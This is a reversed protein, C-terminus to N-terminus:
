RSKSKEKVKKDKNKDSIWNSLGLMAKSENDLKNLFQRTIGGVSKSNVINKIKEDFQKLFEEVSSDNIGGKIYFLEKSGQKDDIRILAWKMEKNKDQYSVKFIKGKEKEGAKLSIDYLTKIDLNEFDDNLNRKKYDMCAIPVHLVYKQGTYKGGNIVANIYESVADDSTIGPITKEAKKEANYLSGTSDAKLYEREAEDINKKSIGENNM